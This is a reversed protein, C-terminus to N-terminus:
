TASLLRELGRAILQSRTVGNRGAYEDTRALLRRELTAQVRVSGGGILPRGRPKRVVVVESIEHGITPLWTSLNEANEGTQNNEDNKETRAIEVFGDSIPKARENEM